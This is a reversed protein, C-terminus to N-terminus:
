CGELLVLDLIWTENTDLRIDEKGVHLIVEEVAPEEVRIMRIRPRRLCDRQERMRNEYVRVEGESLREVRQIKEFYVTVKFPDVDAFGSEISSESECDELVPVRNPFRTRMELMTLLYLKESM